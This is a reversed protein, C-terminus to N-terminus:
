KMQMARKDQLNRKTLNSKNQKCKTMRLELYLHRISSQYISSSLYIRQGYNM